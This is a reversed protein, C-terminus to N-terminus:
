TLLDPRAALQLAMYQAAVNVMLAEALTVAKNSLASYCSICNSAIYDPDVSWIKGGTAKWYKHGVAPLHQSIYGLVLMEILSAGPSNAKAQKYNYTVDGKAQVELPAGYGIGKATSQGFYGGYGASNTPADRWGGESKSVLIYFGLPVGTEQSVRRCTDIFDKPCSNLNITRAKTSNIINGCFMTGRYNAQYKQFAEISLKSLFESVEFPASGGGAGMGFVGSFGSSMMLQEDVMYNRYNIKNETKGFDLGMSEYAIKIMDLRLKAFMEIKLDAQEMEYNYDGVAM